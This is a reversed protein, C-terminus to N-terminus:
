YWRRPVSGCWLGMHIMLAHDRSLGANIGTTKTKDNVIFRAEEVLLQIENPAAELANAIVNDFVQRIEVASARVMDRCEIRQEVNLAKFQIKEAFLRISDELIGALEIETETSLAHSADLLSTTIKKIRELEHQSQALWQPVAPNSLDSGIMHLLNTLIQLPKKLEHSVAALVADSYYTEYAPKDPPREISEGM